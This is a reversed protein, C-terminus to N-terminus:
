NKKWFMKVWSWKFNEFDLVHWYWCTSRIVSGCGPPCGHGMTWTFIYIYLLAYSVDYSVVLVCCTGVRRLMDKIEHTIIDGIWCMLMISSEHWLSMEIFGGSNRDKVNSVLAGELFVLSGHSTKWACQFPSYTYLPMYIYIYIYTIIYIIIYCMCYLCTLSHVHMNALFVKHKQRAWFISDNNPPVRDGVM